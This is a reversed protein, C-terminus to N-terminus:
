TSRIKIVKDIKTNLENIDSRLLAETLRLEALFNREQKKLTNIFINELHKIFIDM